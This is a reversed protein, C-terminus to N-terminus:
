PTPEKHAARRCHVCIYGPPNVDVTVWGASERIRHGCLTWERDRSLHLRGTRRPAGYIYLLAVTETAVNDSMTM